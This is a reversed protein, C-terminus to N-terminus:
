CAQCHSRQRTFTYKVSWFMICRPLSGMSSPKSTRSICFHFIGVSLAWWFHSTNQIKQQHCCLILWLKSLINVRLQFIKNLERLFHHPNSSESSANALYLLGQLYLTENNKQHSLLKKINGGKIHWM